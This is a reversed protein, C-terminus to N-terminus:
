SILNLLHALFRFHEQIPYTRGTYDFISLICYFSVVSIAPLLRDRLWNSNEYKRKRLQSIGIGMAFIITYFIYVHYGALANWFGLEDIYHLDRFFHFFANGFCAAAFTAAFLRLRPWRKFYRMFTPYFFFDVLLEKFYYYYRNWFEAISRAELPRYTNRLAQFGAMRCCAVIMHGNISLTLLTVLFNAILSAWGLYWPFPIRHVSQEFLYDYIPIGFYGHVVRKFATLVLWLVLSWAYLKLGKIQSIALQEGNQAEIRRLYVAGKVFPTTTASFGLWFPRYNGLQLAFTDRGKSNRDHLSYGIFWLYTSVVVLFNWAPTRFEGSKPLYSAFLVSIAFVTLLSAIPRRGFWSDRFRIASWFLVGGLILVMVPYVLLRHDASLWWVGFTWALTGFTLVLRRYQPLATTATILAM